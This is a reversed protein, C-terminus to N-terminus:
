RSMEDAEFHRRCHGARYADEDHRRLQLSLTADGLRTTSKLTYDPPYHRGLYAEDFHRSAFDLLRFHHRGAFGASAM